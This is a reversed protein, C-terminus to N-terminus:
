KDRNINLMISVLFHQHGSKLCFRLLEL